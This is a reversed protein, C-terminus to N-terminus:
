IAFQGEFTNNTSNQGAFNWHQLGLGEIEGFMVKFILTKM